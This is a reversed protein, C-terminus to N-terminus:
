NAAGASNTGSAADGEECKGREGEMEGWGGVWGGGAAGVREVAVGGSVLGGEVNREARRPSAAAAAGRAAADALAGGLRGVSKVERREAGKPPSTLPKAQFACPRQAAAAGSRLAFHCCTLASARSMSKPKSM